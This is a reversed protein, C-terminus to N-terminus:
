YNLIYIKISEFKFDTINLILQNLKGEENSHVIDIIFDFKDIVNAKSLENEYIISINKIGKEDSYSFNEILFLFSKNKRNDM